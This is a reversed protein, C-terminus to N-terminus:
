ILFYAYLKSTLLNYKRNQEIVRKLIHIVKWDVKISYLIIILINQFLEELDQFNFIFNFEKLYNEKM